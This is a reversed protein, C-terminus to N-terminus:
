ADIPELVIEEFIDLKNDYFSITITNDKRYVRSVQYDDLVLLFHYIQQVPTRAWVWARAAPQMPQIPILAKAIEHYNM